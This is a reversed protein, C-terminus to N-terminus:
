RSMRLDVVEADFHDIIRAIFPDRTVEMMMQRKTKFNAQSGSSQSQKKPDVRFEIKMERGAIESLLAEFRTKRDSRDCVQFNYTSNLTVVLKNPGSIAIANYSAGADSSM